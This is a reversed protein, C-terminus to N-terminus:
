KSYRTRRDKMWTRVWGAPALNLLIEFGGDKSADMAALKREPVKYAYDVFAAWLMGWAAIDDYKTSGEPTRLELTGRFMWSHVNLARYRVTQGCGRKDTKGTKMKDPSTYVNNILERKFVKPHDTGVLIQAFQKGCPVCYKAQRRTPPVLSFIASETKVYLMLARRVDYYDFDRCDAHVHLGCRDTVMAEAQKLVDAIEKAQELYLDGNAPSMTIEFGTAPLSQDEVVNCGWAKVVADIAAAYPRYGDSEAVEIEAAVFRHSPNNVFTKAKWFTPLPNQVIRVSSHTSRTRERAKPAPIKVEDIQPGYRVVNVTPVAGPPPAAQCRCCARCRGCGEHMRDNRIFNGCRPCERCHCTTHRRDCGTCHWCLCCDECVGCEGCREDPTHRRVECRTCTWCRCHTDCQNCDECSRSVDCGTFECVPIKATKSM